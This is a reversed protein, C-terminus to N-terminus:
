SWPSKVPRSGSSSSSPWTGPIATNSPTSRCSPRISARRPHQLPVDRRHLHGRGPGQPGPRPLPQRPLGLRLPHLGRHRLVRRDQRELELQVPTNGFGTRSTASHTGYQRFAASAPRSSRPIATCPSIARAASTSSASARQSRDRAGAREGHDLRRAAARRRRAPLGRRRGFLLGGFPRFSTGLVALGALSKALFERRGPVNRSAM